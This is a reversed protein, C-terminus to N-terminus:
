EISKEREFFMWGICMHVSLWNDLSQMLLNRGVSFILCWVSLGRTFLSSMLSIHKRKSHSVTLDLDWFKRYESDWEFCNGKFGPPCSLNQGTSIIRGKNLYIYEYTYLILIGSYHFCCSFRAFM